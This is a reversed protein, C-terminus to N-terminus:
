KGGEQADNHVLYRAERQLQNMYHEQYMQRDNQSVHVRRGDEEYWGLLTMRAWKRACDVVREEQLERQRSRKELEEVRRKLDEIENM